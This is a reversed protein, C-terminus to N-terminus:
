SNEVFENILQQQDKIVDLCDRYHTYLERLADVPMEITSGEPLTDLQDLLCRHMFAAPSSPIDM